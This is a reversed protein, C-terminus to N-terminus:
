RQNRTVPRSAEHHDDQWEEGGGAMKDKGGWRRRLGTKIKEEEQPPPGPTPRPSGPLRELDAHRSSSCSRPKNSLWAAGAKAEDSRALLLWRRREIEEEAM